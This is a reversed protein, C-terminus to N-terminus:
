CGFLIGLHIPHVSEDMANLPRPKTRTKVVHVLHPSRLHNNTLRWFTPCFGNATVSPNNCSKNNCHRREKTQNANSLSVREGADDPKIHSCHQQWEEEKGEHDTGRYVDVVNSWVNTPPLLGFPCLEFCLHFTRRDQTNWFAPVEKEM